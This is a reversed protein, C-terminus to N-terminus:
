AENLGSANDNPSRGRSRDQAGLQGTGGPPWGVRFEGLCFRSSAPRSHFAMIGSSSARSMGGSGLRQELFLSHLLATRTLVRSGRLGAASPGVRRRASCSRTRSLKRADLAGPNRRCPQQFRHPSAPSSISYTAPVDGHPRRTLDRSSLVLPALGARAAGGGLDTSGFRPSWPGCRVVPPCSGPLASEGVRCLRRCARTNAQRCNSRACGSARSHVVM